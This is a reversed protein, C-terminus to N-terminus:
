LGYREEVFEPSGKTGAKVEYRSPVYNGYYDKFGKEGLMCQGSNILDMATRGYSGNLQWAQGTNILEQFMKISDESELEGEEYSIIKDIQAM